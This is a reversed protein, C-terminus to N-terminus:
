DTPIPKGAVTLTPSPSPTPTDTPVNPNSQAVADSDDKSDRERIRIMLLDGSQWPQEPVNWVRREIGPRSESAADDFGLTLFAQGELNIFDMVYDPLDISEYTSMKVQENEWLLSQISTSTGKILPPKLVGFSDDYFGM